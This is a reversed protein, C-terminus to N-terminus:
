IRFGFITVDDKQSENGKFHNFEQEILNYQEQMEKSYIKELFFKLQKSGYKINKENTQSAFGNSTLYFAMGKQIRMEIEKYKVESDPSEGISHRDGKIEILKDNDFFYLPRKAGAYTLTNNSKNIKVLALDLNCNSLVCNETEVFERFRVNLQKLISSPSIENKDIIIENHFISSMISIFAGAFSHLKCDAVALYIENGSQHFWYFDSSIIDKPKNFIFYETLYKSIETNKPLIANQIQHALKIGTHIKHNKNDIDKKLAELENSKETIIHNKEDFLLNNAKKSLNQKYIFYAIVVLLALIAVLSVMKSRDAILELDKAKRQLQVRQKELEQQRSQIEYVERNKTERDLKSQLVTRFINSSYYEKLIETYKELYKIADPFNNSEYEIKYLNNYAIRLGERDNQNEFIPLTKLYFDKALDTKGMLKYTSGISMMCEASKLKDNIKTYIKKAEEYNKLANEFDEIAFYYNGKEFIILPKIFNNRMRESQIKMAEDLVELAKENKSARLSKSYDILSNVTHTIEKENKFIVISEEYLLNAQEFENMILAKGAAEIASLASKVPQSILKYLEKSQLFANKSEPYFGAFYYGKGLNFYASAMSSTDALNSALLIAESAYNMALKPSSLANQESLKNLIDIRKSGSSVFLSDTLDAFVYLNM